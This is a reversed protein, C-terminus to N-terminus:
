EQSYHAVLDPYCALELIGRPSLSYVGRSVREFWGYVNDYLIATTKEGTGLERLSKTSLPGLQQLRVAIHVASERYATVLKRKSSGGQNYDASRSQVERIM